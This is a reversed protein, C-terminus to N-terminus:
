PLLPRPPATSAPTPPAPIHKPLKRKLLASRLIQIVFNTSTIMPIIGLFTRESPSHGHLQELSGFVFFCGLSFLTAPIALAMVSGRDCLIERALHLEDDSLPERKRVKRLIAPSTGIDLDDTVHTRRAMRRTFLFAVCAFVWIMAFSIITLVGWLSTATV